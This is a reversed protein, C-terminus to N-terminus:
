RRLRRLAEKLAEAAEAPPPEQAGLLGKALGPLARLGREFAACAACVLLHLWVLARERPTLAGEACDTLRERVDRCTFLLKM